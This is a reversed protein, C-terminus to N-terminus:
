ARGSPSQCVPEISLGHNKAFVEFAMLIKGPLRNRLEKISLVQAVFPRAFRIEDRMLAIEVETERLRTEYMKLDSAITASPAGMYRASIRSTGAVTKRKPKVCLENGSLIEIFEKMQETTVKTHDRFHDLFRREGEKTLRHIYVVSGVPLKKNDIWLKFEDSCDAVKLWVYLMAETIGCAQAIADHSIDYKEVLLNIYYARQSPLLDQRKSDISLRVFDRYAEFNAWEDKKYGEDIMCPVSKYGLKKVAIFRRVGDVITYQKKVPDMVVALPDKLGESKISQFLFKDESSKVRKYRSAVNLQKLSVDATKIMNHFM